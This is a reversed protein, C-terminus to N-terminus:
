ERLALWTLQVLWSAVVLIALTMAPWRAALRAQAGFLEREALFGIAVLALYLGTMLVIDGAGLGLAVLASVVAIGAARLDATRADNSGDRSEARDASLTQGSEPMTDFGAGCRVCHRDQGERPTGCRVCYTSPAPLSTGSM